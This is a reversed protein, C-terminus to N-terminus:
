LIVRSVVFCDSRWNGSLSHFWRYGPGIVFLDGRFHRLVTEGGNDSHYNGAALVRLFQPFAQTAPTPTLRGLLPPTLEVVAPTERGWGGLM